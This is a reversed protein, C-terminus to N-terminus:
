LLSSKSDRHPNKKRSGTLNVTGASVRKPKAFTQMPRGTLGPLAIRINM